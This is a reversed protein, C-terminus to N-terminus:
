RRWSWCSSAPPSRTATPSTSARRDHGAAAFARGITGAPGDLEDAIPPPPRRRPRAAAASGFDLVALPDVADVKAGALRPAGAAPTARRSGSAARTPPPSSSPSTTTSSAPRRRAPACPRTPSSRRCSARHQDAVGEVRLEALARAAKALADPSRRRRRTCSRGQRAALRLQREHPLRRLRLHRHPLRRRVPVEFATLVGGGPPGHRRRGDDGHERPVARRHRAAGAGVAQTSASTPSRAAPPSSSSPACSTSASCRRPSPTSSRCARTPRSSSTAAPTPTSSSSSPGSAATARGRDGDAGRRRAAADRVAPDLDAGPRDRRAEPPPAPPQVRAGVPPQRAGRGDGVIQVEIHRARAM